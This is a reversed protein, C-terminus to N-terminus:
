CDYTSPAGVPRELEKDKRIDGDPRITPNPPAVGHRRQTICKGAAVPGLDDRASATGFPYGTSGASAPRISHILM